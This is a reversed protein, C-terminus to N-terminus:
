YGYKVLSGPYGDVPQIEVTTKKECTFADQWEGDLTVSQKQATYNLLFLVRREPGNRIHATVGTPTHACPTIEALACLYTVFAATAAEDLATGLYIVQGKGFANV